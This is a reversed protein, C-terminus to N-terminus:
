TAGMGALLTLVLALLVLLALPVQQPLHRAAHRLYARRRAIRLSPLRRVDLRILPRPPVLDPLFGVGTAQTLPDGFPMWAPPPAFGDQWAPVAEGPPLGRRRQLWVVMGGCLAVLAALPLPAYGPADTVASLQLLGARGGLDAGTLQRIAPDALLRLVSGPVLGLMASVGALTLLAARVPRPPDQAATARPTRPRGLCAVGVLRVLATGSLAATLALVLAAGALVLSPALGTARPASLIAQFLLYVSAFGAAPPLAALGFVGALLAITTLPMFHGLGGLRDLRRTGAGNRIFAAALTALTGCVAQTALLLLMAAVALAALDPLDAAKALLVLGLAMAALGTQRHSIAAVASDLETARAAQWGGVLATAAGLALPLLAWWLPAPGTLEAAIRLLIGHAIPVVGGCLMATAPPPSDCAAPVLWAHLPVLGALAGAAALACVFGAGARWPDPPTARIAEFTSAAGSPSLLALAVFLGAAAFLMVVLQITRARGPQACTWLAAGAVSFGIALTVADAALVALGLGALSIPLGAGGTTAKRETAEAIVAIAAGAIFLLCLLGAALPDLALHMAQDAPGFPLELTTSPNGAALALLALMGGFGALGACGLDVAGKIRPVVAGLVGLGFLAVLLVALAALIPDSM